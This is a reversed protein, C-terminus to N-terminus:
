NFAAVRGKIETNMNRSLSLASDLLCSVVFTRVASTFGGNVQSNSIESCIDNIHCDRMKCIHDLAQWLKPELRISTRHNNVVINRCVLSSKHGSM